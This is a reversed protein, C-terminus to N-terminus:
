KTMEILITQRLSDYFTQDYISPYMEEVLSLVYDILANIFQMRQDRSEFTYYDVENDLRQVVILVKDLTIPYSLIWQIHQESQQLNIYLPVKDKYQQMVAYLQSQAKIGM